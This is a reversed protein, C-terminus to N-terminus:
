GNGSPGTIARVTETGPMVTATDGLFSAAGEWDLVVYGGLPLCRVTTPATIARSHSGTVQSQSDSFQWSAMSGVSEFWTLATGTPPVAGGNAATTEPQPPPNCGAAILVALALLSYRM